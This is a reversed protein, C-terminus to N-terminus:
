TSARSPFCSDSVSVCANQEYSWLCLSFGGWVIVSSVFQVVMAEEGEERQALERLVEKGAEDMKM